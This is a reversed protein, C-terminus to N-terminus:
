EQQKSGNCITSIYNMIKETDDPNFWAADDYKKFWTLQKRAYRRTNGKIREVAEGLTYKGDMFAFMEKYGVTDLANLSKHQYLREAEQLLGDGM